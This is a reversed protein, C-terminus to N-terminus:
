IWFLLKKNLVILNQENKEEVKLKLAFWFRSNFYVYILINILIQKLNGLCKIADWKILVTVHKISKMIFVFLTMIM